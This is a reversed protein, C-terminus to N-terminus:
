KSNLIEKVEEDEVQPFEKYFQGVAQFDHPTEVAIIKDFYKELERKTRRSIVPTALIIKGSGLKKLIMSAAIATAGTAVGDDVALTIKGKVKPLKIGLSKEREKISQITESIAVEREKLSMGLYEILKEDWFVVGGSGMAGVALEPNQPAAIKKVLLVQLPLGLVESVTKGVIVGGRPISVIVSDRPIKGKSLKLALRLGAEERNLFM